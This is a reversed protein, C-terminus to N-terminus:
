ASSPMRSLLGDRPSPSTYLLCVGGLALDLAQAALKLTCLQRGREIAQGFQEIAGRKGTQQLLRQAIFGLADRQDHQIDIVELLEIILVSVRQAVSHQLMDPLHQATRQWGVGRSRSVATLLEAHNQLVTGVQRTGSNESLLQPHFYLRQPDLRPNIALYEIRDRCGKAHSERLGALIHVAEQGAGIVREVLGLASPPVPYM